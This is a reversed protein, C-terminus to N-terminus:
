PRATSPSSCRTSRTEWVKLPSQADVIWGAATRHGLELKNTKQNIGAYKFDTPSFYDFIVFSNGDWGAGSKDIAVQASLEYYIPLYEDHYFVAAADKGQSEASVRLAGGSVTFSGSDTAFGSM